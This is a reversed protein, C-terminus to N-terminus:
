IFVTLVDESFIEAWKATELSVGDTGCLRTSIFGINIHKKSKSLNVM